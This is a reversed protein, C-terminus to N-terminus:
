AEDDLAAETHVDLCTTCVCTNSIMETQNTKNFVFVTKAFYYINDCTM